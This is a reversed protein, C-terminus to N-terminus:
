CMILGTELYITLGNVCRPFRAVMTPTFNIGWHSPLYSSCGSTNSYRVVVFHLCIVALVCGFSPVQFIVGNYTGISGWQVNHARIQSFTRYKIKLPYVQM